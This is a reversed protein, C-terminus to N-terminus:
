RPAKGTFAVIPTKVSYDVTIAVTDRQDPPVAFVYAASQSKGPALTSPLPKTGPGSLAPAPTKEAGYSLNVVTNNLDLTKKAGSTLQITVRVAPGAVEGPGRATGQVAELKPVRAALEPQIKAKKDIPVAPARRRAKTQDSTPPETPEVVPPTTTKPKTSTAQPAPATTSTPSPRPSPSASPSSSSASPLSSSASPLVSPATPSSSVPTPPLASDDSRTVAVITVVLIAVAAVAGIIVVKRTSLWAQHTPEGHAM